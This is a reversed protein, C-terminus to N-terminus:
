SWGDGPSGTPHRRCAHVVIELCEEITARDVPRRLDLSRRAARTCTLLRDVTALDFPAPRTTASTTVTM